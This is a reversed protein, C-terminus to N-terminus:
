PGHPTWGRIERAALRRLETVPPYMSDFTIPPDIDQLRKRLDSKWAAEIRITWGSAAYSANPKGTRVKLFNVRLTSIEMLDAATPEHGAYAWRDGKYRRNLGGVLFAGRQAHMRPDLNAEDVLAVTSTWDSKAYRGRASGHWPLDPDSLLLRQTAGASDPHLFFCFLRGDLDAHDDVAFFLAELPAKSVDLLRTAVGHHQLVALLQGDSMNRGVGEDRALGIVAREAEALEKEGFNKIGQAALGERLDRYLKSSLGHAANAQGRFVLNEGADLQWSMPALSLDSSNLWSWLDDASELGLRKNIETAAFYGAAHGM